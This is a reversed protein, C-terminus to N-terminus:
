FHTHSSVYPIRTFRFVRLMVVARKENDTM